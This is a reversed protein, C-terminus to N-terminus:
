LAAVAVAAAQSSSSSSNSSHTTCHQQLQQQQQLQAVAAVVAATPRHQMVQEVQQLQTDLVYHHFCVHKYLLQNIHRASTLQRLESLICTSILMM